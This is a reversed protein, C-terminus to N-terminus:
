RYLKYGQGLARWHRVPRKEELEVVWWLVEKAKETQGSAEYANGLAFWADSDDWGSGLKTLNSLLTYARDRSALLDLEESAEHRASDLGTDEGEEDDDEVASNGGNAQPVTATHGDSGKPFLPQSPEDFKAQIELGGALTPPKRSLPIKRSHIDLLINALAVTASSHDPYHSLSVEYEIMAEYPDGEAECLHGMEAYSDAWIEEVSKIGGWGPEDFARVGSPKPYSTAAEALKTQKFAEDMAQRADELMNGRRYLASIFLWIQNLLAISYRHEEVPSFILAPIYFPIKDSSSFSPSFEPLEFSRVPKSGAQVNFQLANNHRLSVARATQVVPYDHTVAIGVESRDNSYSSATRLHSATDPQIDTVVNNAPLIPNGNLRVPSPDRSKRVSHRSRRKQLKHSPARTPVEPISQPLSSGDATVAITPPLLEERAPNTQPLSSTSNRVSKWHRGFISGRSSKITGTATPPPKEIAQTQPPVRAPGFFRSYHELLEASANVADQSGESVEALSIQTMKAEMIQKKRFFSLNKLNDSADSFRSDGEYQELATRSAVEATEFEQRSSLLLSLLHWCEIISHNRTFSNRTDEGQSRQDVLDTLIRSETTLAQKIVVIAGEINRTEALILALPYLFFADEEALHDSRLAIKLHAIADAQLKSRDKSEYTLRAWSAKSIAIARHVSAYVNSAIKSVKRSSPSPQDGNVATDENQELWRLLRNSLSISKKVHEAKGFDCLMEIGGVITQLMLEDDDLDPHEIGSKKVRAKGKTIIELYSDLAKEALGFEALATHLTFLHRLVSTSHFTM